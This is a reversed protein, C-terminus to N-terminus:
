CDFVNFSFNVERIDFSTIGPAKLWKRLYHKKVGPEAEFITLPVARFIVM